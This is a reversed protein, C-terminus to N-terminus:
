LLGRQWHRTTKQWGQPDKARLRMVLDRGEGETAKETHTHTLRQIWIEVANPSM